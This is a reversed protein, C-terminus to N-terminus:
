SQRPSVALLDGQPDTTVDLWVDACECGALAYLTEEADTQEAVDQPVGKIGDAWRNSVEGNRYVIVGIEQGEVAAIFEDYATPKFTTYRGLRDIESQTFVWRETM